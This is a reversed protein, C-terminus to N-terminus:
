VTIRAVPLTTLFRLFRELSKVSSLVTTELVGKIITKCVLWLVLRTAKQPAVIDVDM